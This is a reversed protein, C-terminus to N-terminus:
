GRRAWTHGYFAFTWRGENPVVVHEVLSPLFYAELDALSEACGDLRPLLGFAAIAASAKKSGDFHQQAAVCGIAFCARRRTRLTM